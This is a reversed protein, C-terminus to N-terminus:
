GAARIDLLESRKRRQEVFQRLPPDCLCALLRPDEPLRMGLRVTESDSHLVIISINSGIKISQGRKGKLVIM